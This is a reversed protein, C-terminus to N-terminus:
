CDEGERSEGFCRPVAVGSGKVKLDTPRAAGPNRELGQDIRRVVPDQETEERPASIVPRGDASKRPLSEHDKRGPAAPDRDKVENRESDKAKGDKGEASQGKDLRPATSAVGPGKTGGADDRKAKEIVSEDGKAENKEIRPSTSAVDKGKADGANDGKAKEQAKDASKEKSEDKGAGQQSKASEGVGKPLAIGDGQITMNLSPLAGFGSKRNPFDSSPIRIEAPTADPRITQAAAAVGGFVTAGNLIVSQGPNTVTIQNPNFGPINIVVIPPAGPGVFLGGGPTVSVGPPLQAWASTSAVSIVAVALINRLKM